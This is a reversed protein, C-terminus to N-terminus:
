IPKCELVSLSSNINIIRELEYGSTKLINRFEKETRERGGATLIMMHVDFLTNTQYHEESIGPNNPELVIEVLILKEKGNMAKRCNKLIKVAQEDDWDHIINKLIYADGGSPVSVFFEGGIIECRNALGWKNIIEKARDVVHPVDFLVGQIYPYRRLISTIFTGTGGGIDIVKQYSSFDYNELISDIVSKTNNSMCKNFIDGAQPAKEFYQFLNMDFVKEFPSKGTEVAYLLEGWPKWVFEEGNIIINNRVSNPADTQLPIAFDTMKFSKEDEAEAFLGVSTLARLVRYLASEDTRTIDALEKISKPGDKLLDAIGLKTAVYILQTICYGSILQNLKSM